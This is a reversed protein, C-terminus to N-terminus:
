ITQLELATLPESHIKIEKAEQELAYMENRAVSLKYAEKARELKIATEEHGLEIYKKLAVLYEAHARELKEYNAM